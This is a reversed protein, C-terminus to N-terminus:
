RPNSAGLSHNKNREKEGERREGRGKTERVGKKNGKEKPKNAIPQVVSLLHPTKGENSTKVLALQLLFFLFFSVGVVFLVFHSNM